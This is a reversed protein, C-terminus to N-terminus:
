SFSADIQHGKRSAKEKALTQALKVDNKVGFNQEFWNMQNIPIFYSRDDVVGMVMPNNEGFIYTPMVEDVDISLWNGDKDKEKLVISYMRKSEEKIEESM